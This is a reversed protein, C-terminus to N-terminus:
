NTFFDMGLAASGVFNLNEFGEYDKFALMYLTKFFSGNEEIQQIIRNGDLTRPEAETLTKLTIPLWEIIKRFAYPDGTAIEYFKDISVRRIKNHERREENVKISWPVNQSHKAIIEVLMCTAQDDELIKSQMNIYTKQSSNSNMTNHKNKLEVFIHRENNILDFGKQPVDWGDIYNFINQHFYGIFNNITKDHQRSIESNVISLKNEGTAFYSLTMKVPDIINRNFEDLSSANTCDLVIDYFTKVHKIYDDQSIFDINWSM